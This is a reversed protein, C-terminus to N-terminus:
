HKLEEEIASCLTKFEEDNFLRTLMIIRGTRDILINRTIGASSHAYKTFVESDTDMLIPYTIKTFDVLKQVKEKTDERDIGYLAFDKHNKHKQWIETEIHPMEKRCVGCWSATFQLMVVKGRLSSLKVTKGEPTNLTFDPAVDGVKVIYGRMPDEKNVSQAAFPMALFLTLFLFHKM